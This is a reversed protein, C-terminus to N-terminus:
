SQGKSSDITKSDSATQNWWGGGLAQFLAATDAYRQARAKVLAILANQYNQQATLVQVYTDAGTRFRAQVITLSDAAAREAVADSQLADADAQLAYLANSVNQFAALVTSRYNDAAEQAAAVAASRKHKLTGGEFIPQTLSSIASWVMSSPSFLSGYGLSERGYAGSLTIQPLMNATAIGVNATAEHLLADYERIDPRQAVLQSPLSVPLSDPLTLDDLKIDVDHFDAPMAGVYTALQNRQQVLQSRLVPLTAEETALLSQQQLVDARSAAGAQVQREVIDLQAQESRVIAETAAIQERLSAENIAGTVVNATLSLYSAELSYRQYDAQAQLSEVQRRTGGFADITYSVNVQANYLTFIPNYSLGQLAGNIKEREPSLSASVTPFYAGGGAALNENAERLAAQASDLTPSNKLAQDILRNLATSHYLTWWQGPIDLGNVFHQPNGGAVPAASTHAVTADPAYGAGLPAQPTKYDPGVACGGLLCALALAVGTPRTAMRARQKVSGRTGRSGREPKEPLYISPM